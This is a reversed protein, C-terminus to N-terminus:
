FKGNSINSQALRRAEDLFLPTSRRVGNLMNTVHSLSIDCRSALRQRDTKNRVKVGKTLYARIERANRLLIKRKMKM